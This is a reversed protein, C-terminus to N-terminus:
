HPDALELNAYQHEVSSKSLTKSGFEELNQIENTKNLGLVEM